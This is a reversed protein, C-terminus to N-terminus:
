ETSSEIAADDGPHNKDKGPNQYPQQKSIDTYGTTDSNQQSSAPKTNLSLRSISLDVWDRAKAIWQVSMANEKYSHHGGSCLASIGTRYCACVQFCFLSLVWNPFGM